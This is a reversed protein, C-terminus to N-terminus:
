REAVIWTLGDATTSLLVARDAGAVLLAIRDPAAVDLEVSSWSEGDTLTLTTAGLPSTGLFGVTNRSSALSLVTGSGVENRQWSQGGDASTAAWAMDGDDGALMITGDMVAINVITDGDGIGSMPSATWETGDVSDFLTPGFATSTGVAVFGSDIAVVGALSDADAVSGVREYPGAPSGTWVAPAPEWSDMGAFSRVDRGPLGATGGNHGPAGTIRRGALMSIEATDLFLFQKILGDGGRHRGTGGSNPRRALVELRVPFCSELEEVDTARTNTM